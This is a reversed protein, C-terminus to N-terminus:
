KQHINSQSIRDGGDVRVIAHALIGEDSLHLSNWM